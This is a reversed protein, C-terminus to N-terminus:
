CGYEGAWLEGAFDSVACYQTYMGAHGAYLLEANLIRGGCFM